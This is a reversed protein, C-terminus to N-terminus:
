SAATPAARARAACTSREHVSRSRAAATMAAITPLEGSWQRCDSSVADDLKRASGHGAALWARWQVVLSSVPRWGFVTGHSSPIHSAKMECEHFSSAAVLYEASLAHAASLWSPRRLIM